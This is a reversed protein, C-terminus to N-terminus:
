ERRVKNATKISEFIINELTKQSEQLKNIYSPDESAKTYLRLISENTMRAQKALIQLVKANSDAGQSVFSIEIFELGKNIEYVPQNGFVGGKHFKVHDCYNKVSKASHACISCLSNSVAVGMSVSQSHGDKVMQAFEPHATANIEMLCKVYTNDNDGNDVFKADIIIGRKKEIDSSQHNVYIGKGIFTKYAKKLEDYTFNDANGNTGVSIARVVVYLMGDRKTFNWENDSDNKHLSSDQIPSDRGVIEM